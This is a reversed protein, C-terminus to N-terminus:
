IKAQLNDAMKYFSTALSALVDEGKVRMRVELRGGALREAISAAMRVPLVVQRTVFYAIGMLAFVLALGAAGIAQEMSNLTQQDQPLPFTFYVEATYGNATTIQEGYVLATQETPPEGVSVVAYAAEMTGQLSPNKVQAVMDAPLSAPDMKGCSLPFTQEPQTIIVAVQYQEGHVSGACLQNLVDTGVVRNDNNANALSLYYRADNFGSTAQAVAADERTRLIDAAVHQAIFFGLGAAVAISLVMTVSVVRFQISRRWRAPLDWLLRVFAASGRRLRVATNRAM